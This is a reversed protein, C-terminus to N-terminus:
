GDNFQIGLGAVVISDRARREADSDGSAESGSGSGIGTSLNDLRSLKRIAAACAFTCAIFIACAAATVGFCYNCRSFVTGTAIIIAPVGLAMVCTGIRAPWTRGFWLQSVAQFAYRRCQMLSLAFCLATCAVGLPIVLYLVVDGDSAPYSICTTVVLVLALSAVSCAYRAIHTAGDQLADHDDDPTGYAEDTHQANPVM